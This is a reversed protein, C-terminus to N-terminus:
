LTYIERERDAVSGLMTGFIVLGGLLVPFFLDRIGSAALVTGLVHRYVGNARTAAIPSPLMRALDEAIDTAESTGQTYLM